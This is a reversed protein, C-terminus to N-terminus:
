ESGRKQKMAMFCREGAAQSTQRVATAASQAGAKASWMFARSFDTSTSALVM